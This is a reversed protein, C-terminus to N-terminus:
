NNEALDHGLFFSMFIMEIVLLNMDSLVRVMRQAYSMGKEERRAGGGRVGSVKDQSYVVCIYICIVSM